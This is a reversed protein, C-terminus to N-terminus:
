DSFDWHIELQSEPTFGDLGTSSDLDITLLNNNIYCSGNTVNCTFEESFPLNAEEITQPRNFFQIYTESGDNKGLYIDYHIESMTDVKDALSQPVVHTTPIQIATLETFGGGGANEDILQSLIAPNTNQPTNMVYDIIQQKGM